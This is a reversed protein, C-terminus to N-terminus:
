KKGNITPVTPKYRTLISNLPMLISSLKLLFTFEVVNLEIKVKNITNMSKLYVGWNSFQSKKSASKTPAVLSSHVLSPAQQIKILTQNLRKIYPNYGLGSCHLIFVAKIRKNKNIPKANKTGIFNLFYIIKNM